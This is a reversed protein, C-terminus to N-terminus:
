SLNGRFFLAQNLHLKRRLHDVVTTTASWIHKSNEGRDRRQPLNEGMKVSRMNKWLPQNLWWALGKKWPSLVTLNWRPRWASLRALAKHDGWCTPPKPPHHTTTCPPCVGFFFWNYTRYGGSMEPYFLVLSVWKNEGILPSIAGTFGMQKRGNLTFYGRTFGM